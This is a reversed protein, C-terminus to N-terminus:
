GAGDRLIILWGRSSNGIRRYRTHWQRVGDHWCGDGESHRVTALLSPPLVEEAFAGILSGGNGFLGEAEQNASVIMGENDVGLVPLPVLQLIEQVVGLAIEDVQLQRKKEELLRQLQANAKGLEIALRRNEDALEKFLFAEQVNARLQDDDWPKTLFKFIAGENIAETISNLETYGSLVIRVTDPYLGKVQRLFEVGTMNPMRQDSIVVDVANQALAALGLEGGAATLIRYGDRRFLRKLSSLISEEDDVLLITREKPTGAPNVSLNAAAPLSM